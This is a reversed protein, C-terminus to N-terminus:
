GGDSLPCLALEPGCNSPMVIGSPGCAWTSSSPAEMFDIATLQGAADYWYNVFTDVGMESVDTLGSCSMVFYKSLPIPGSCFQQKAAVLTAPCALPPQCVQALTASCVTAADYQPSLDRTGVSLDAAGASLDAAGASLDPGSEPIRDGCAALGVVL